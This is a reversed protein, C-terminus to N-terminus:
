ERSSEAVREDKKEGVVITQTLKLMDEMKGDLGANGAGFNQVIGVLPGSQKTLKMSEFMLDRAHKDGSERVKGVGECVPCEREETKTPKGTKEDREIIDVLIKRGDCRACLVYKSLADEGVDEMVQPLRSAINLLGIHRQGDTYLTQLEHLTMDHKRMLLAFSYKANKPDHLAAIFGAYKESPGMFMELSELDISERFRNIARDDSPRHPIDRGHRDHLRPLDRQKQNAKQFGDYDSGWKSM